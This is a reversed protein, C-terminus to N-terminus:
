LMTGVFYAMVACLSIFSSLMAAFVVVPVFRDERLGRLLWQWPPFGRYYKPTKLYATSKVPQRSVVVRKKAVPVAGSKRLPITDLKKSRIQSKDGTLGWKDLVRELNARLEESV